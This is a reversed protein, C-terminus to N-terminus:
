LIQTWAAFGARQSVWLELDGGNTLAILVQHTPTLLIAPQEEDMETVVVETDVTGPITQANEGGDISWRFVCDGDKEGAIVLLGQREHLAVLQLGDTAAM